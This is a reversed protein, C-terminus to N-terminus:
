SVCKQTLSEKLTNEVNSRSWIKAECLNEKKKEEIVETVYSTKNIRVKWSKEYNNNEREQRKGGRENMWEREWGIKGEKREEKEM